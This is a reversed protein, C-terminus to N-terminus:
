KYFILDGYQFLNTLNEKHWRNENWNAEFYLAGNSGDWYSLVWELAEYCEADPVAIDYRGDEIPSFQKPEFIVEEISNPFRDSDVRNKIVNMVLAKGIVGQDEAEAMAIKLLMQSEEDTFTLGAVDDAQSTAVSYNPSVMNLIQYPEEREKQIKSVAAIAGARPASAKAIIMEDLKNDLYDMTLQSTLGGVLLGAAIPVATYRLLRLKKRKMREKKGKM